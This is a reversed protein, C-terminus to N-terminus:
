RDIEIEIDICMDVDVDIHIFIYRYVQTFGLHIYIDIQLEIDIKIDIYTNLAKNMRRLRHSRRRVPVACVHPVGGGVAAGRRTCRGVACVRRLRVAWRQSPSHRAVACIVRLWTVAPNIRVEIHTYVCVCV